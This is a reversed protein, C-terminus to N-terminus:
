AQLSTYNARAGEWRRGRSVQDFGCLRLLCVSSFPTCSPGKGFEARDRDLGQDPERCATLTLGEKLPFFSLVEYPLHPIRFCAESDRWSKRTM